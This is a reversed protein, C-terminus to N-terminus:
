KGLGGPKWLQLQFGVVGDEVGVGGESSCETGEHIIVPGVVIDTM